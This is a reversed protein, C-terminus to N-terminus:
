VEDDGLREDRAETLRAPDEKLWSFGSASVSPAASPTRVITRASPPSAVAAEVSGGGAM